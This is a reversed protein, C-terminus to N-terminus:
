EGAASAFLLRARELIEELQGTPLYRAIFLTAMPMIYREPISLVRCAERVWNRLIPALPGDPDFTHQLHNPAVPLSRKKGLICGLRTYQLTFEFLDVFPLGPIKAWEWDIAYIRHRHLYINDPNFDGHEVVAPLEGNLFGKRVARAAESVMPLEVDSTRNMIVHRDLMEQRLNSDHMESFHDKAIRQLGLLWGYVHSFMRSSRRSAHPMPSVQFTLPPGPAARRILGLGRSLEILRVPTLLAPAYDPVRESLNVLNRYENQLRYQEATNEAYKLVLAPRRSGFPFLLFISKQNGKILLSSIGAPPVGPLGFAHWCKHLDPIIDQEITM